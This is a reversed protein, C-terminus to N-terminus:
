SGIIIFRVEKEFQLMKKILIVATMYNKISKCANKAKRLIIYKHMSSSLKCATMICYCEAYKVKDEGKFSEAHLNLRCLYIYETCTSILEKMKTEEERSTAIFFISYKM